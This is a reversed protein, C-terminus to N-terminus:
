SAFTGDSRLPAGLRPEFHDFFLRAVLESRTATDTKSFISKLHDQITYPTVSLRDAIETTSRGRLVEGLVDRERRTLGFASAYLPALEASRAPEVVVAVRSSDDGLLAGHLVLWRGDPGPTRVQATGRKARAFEAVSLLAPGLAAPEDLVGGLTEIRNREDLVVLGVDHRSPTAHEEVLIAARIAQALRRGLAAVFRAEDATFPRVDSARLLMVAGWAEGDVVFTSRLESRWGRGQYAVFRASGPADHPTLASAPLQRTALEAFSAVDDHRYENEVIMPFGDGSLNTWHSTILLTAPDLTHWCGGDFPV